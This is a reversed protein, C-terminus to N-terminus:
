LILCPCRWKRPTSRAAFAMPPADSGQVMVPRAVKYLAWMMDVFPPILEDIDDSPCLLELTAILVAKKDTGSLVQERALFEMGSMLLSPLDDWVFHAKASGTQAEAIQAALAPPWDSLPLMKKPM